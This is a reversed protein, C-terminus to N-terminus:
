HRSVRTIIIVQRREIRASVLVNVGVRRDTDAHVEVGVVVTNYGTLRIALYVRRYFQEFEPLYNVSNRTIRM